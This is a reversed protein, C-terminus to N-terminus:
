IALPLALLMALQACWVSALPVNLVVVAQRVCRWWWSTEGYLRLTDGFSRGPRWRPCDALM